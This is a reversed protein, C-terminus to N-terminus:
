RRFGQQARAQQQLEAVAEDAKSRIAGWFLAGDPTPDFNLMEVVMGDGPPMILVAGGFPESENKEIRDAMQRFRAAIQKSM